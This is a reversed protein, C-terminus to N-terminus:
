IYIKTKYEVIKEQVGFVCAICEQSYECYQILEDDPILLEAAFTNAEIELKDVNLCTYIDLFVTNVKKHLLAHGLEHALVQRQIQQELKSNIYILKKRFNHQYMGRVNGIDVEKIDINFIKCLKYPDNTEYKHVIKKVFIKIDKL